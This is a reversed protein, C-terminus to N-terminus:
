AKEPAPAAWKIKVSCGCITLQKACVPCREMPCGPHHHQKQMTGCDHCRPPPKSGTTVYGEREDAYLVSTHVKGDCLYDHKNCGNATKKEQNCHKCIM